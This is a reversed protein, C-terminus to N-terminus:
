VSEGFCSLDWPVAATLFLGRVFVMALYFLALSGLPM